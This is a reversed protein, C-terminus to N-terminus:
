KGGSGVRVAPRSCGKLGVKQALQLRTAQQGAAQRKAKAYAASDRNAAAAQGNKLYRLAQERSALYSNYATQLSVPPTLNHLDKLAQKSVDVLASAQKEAQGATKPPLAQIREFQQLTQQCVANAKAIFGSSPSSSGGGCAALALPLVAIVACFLIL